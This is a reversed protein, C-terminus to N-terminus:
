QALKRMILNLENWKLSGKPSCVTREVQWLVEAEGLKQESEENTIGPGPQSTKELQDQLRRRDGDRVEPLALCANAEEEALELIRASRQDKEASRLKRPTPDLAFLASSLEMDSRIRGDDPSYSFATLFAKQAARFDGRDLEARGLSEYLSPNAPDRRILAHLTERARNPSGAILYYNAVQRLATSNNWADTELPLLEPLLDTTKGATALAQVLELRTQVRRDLANEDWGGYIARHFYAQAEPFRATKLMLRAMLLNARGDNPDTQLVPTVLSAAEVNSAAAMLGEVLALTYRKNTRELVHARRLSELASTTNGAGMLRQGNSFAGEAEHEIELKETKALAFDFAFLGAILFLLLLILRLRHVPISM